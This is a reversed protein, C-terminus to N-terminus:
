HSLTVPIIDRQWRRSPLLLHCSLPIWLPTLSSPAKPAVELDAQVQRPVLCRPNNRLRRGWGWSCPRTGRTQLCDSSGSGPMKPQRPAGRVALPVTSIAQQNLFLTIEASQRPARRTGPLVVRKGSRRQVLSSVALSDCVYQECWATRGQELLTREARGQLRVLPSTEASASQPGPPAPQALATLPELHSGPDGPTM